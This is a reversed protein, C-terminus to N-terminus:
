KEKGKKKGASDDTPKRKLVYYAAGGGVAVIVIVAIIMVPSLAPAKQQARALGETAQANGPDATLAKTYADAADQYHGWGYLADGKNLLYKPISANSISIARDYATIAEQYKGMKYFAYGKNNWLGPQKNDIAIGQDASAIAENYYGLETLAGAKDNYLYVIAGTTEIMSTNAALAEDFYHVAQAYEGQSLKIQALNYLSTAEDRPTEAAVPQMVICLAACIFIFTILKRFQM